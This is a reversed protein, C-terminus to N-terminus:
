SLTGTNSCTITITVDRIQTPIGLTYKKATFEGTAKNGSKSSTASTVKWYSNHITYSTSTSTCTASSGTYSFSATLKMTVLPEDDANYLTASKSGSKTSTARAVTNSNDEETVTTIIYSGDNFYEVTESVVSYNNEAFVAISSISFLITITFFLSFIKKM